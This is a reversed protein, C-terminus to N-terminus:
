SQSVRCLIPLCTAHTHSHMAGEGIEGERRERWRGEERSGRGGEEELEEGEEELEEGEEGVVRRKEGM